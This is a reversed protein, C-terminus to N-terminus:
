RWLDGGSRNIGSEVIDFRSMFKYINSDPSLMTKHEPYLLWSHCVFVCTEGIEESFFAKAIAFAEDCSQPTLPLLSRPIHTDIVKTKPTLVIGNKEYARGLETIQFQLRGLAFRTMDFFKFFWPAVFSGVIGKVLKCEETKYKLDLVTDRYIKMNWGRRAYESQLDRTLCIFILLEATYKHISIMEATQDALSIIKKFDCHVNEAYIALAQEWLKAAEVNQMITEYVDTLFDSDEKTYECFEFFNKLYNKM